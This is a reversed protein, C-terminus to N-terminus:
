KRIGTRQEYWKRRYRYYEEPPVISVDNGETIRIWDKCDKPKYFPCKYGCEDEMRRLLRCGSVGKNGIEAFCPDHAYKLDISHLTVM